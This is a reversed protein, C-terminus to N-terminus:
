AAEDPVAPPEDEIEDASAMLAALMEDEIRELLEDVEVSSVARQVDGRYRNLTKVRGALRECLQRVRTEHVDLPLLAGELEALELETKRADAFAKRARMQDLENLEKGSRAAERERDVFWRVCAVVDFAPARATRDVPMGEKLYNTISRADKDLIRAIEAKSVGKAAKM